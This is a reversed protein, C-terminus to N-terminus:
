TIVDATTMRGRGEAGGEIKSPSNIVRSQMLERVASTNYEGM